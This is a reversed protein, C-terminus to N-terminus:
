SCSTQTRTSVLLVEYIVSLSKYKASEGKEALGSGGAELCFRNVVANGKEAVLKLDLDTISVLTCTVALASLTSATWLRGGQRLGSKGAVANEEGDCPHLCAFELSFASGCTFEAAPVLGSTFDGTPVLVSALEALEAILM